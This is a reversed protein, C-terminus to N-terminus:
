NLISDIKQKLADKPLFGVIRDVEQSNNFVVLAPIGMINFKSGLEQEEDVNIKVFKLKGEYMLSLEEFVPKMMQCPGCWPAWFDAIVPISSEFVEKEFNESNLEIVM